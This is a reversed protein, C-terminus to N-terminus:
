GVARAAMAAGDLVLHPAERLLVRDKKSTPEGETGNAVVVKPKRRSAVARMKRATPFAAGGRGRLGSTEVASLIQDPALERLPGHIRLHESLEAMPREGVGALLRPLARPDLSM